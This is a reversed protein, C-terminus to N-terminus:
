FVGYQFNLEVIKVKISFELFNLYDQKLEGFPIDNECIPEFIRFNKTIIIKERIGVIRM